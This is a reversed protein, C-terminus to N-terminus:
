SYKPPKWSPFTFEKFVISDNFISLFIRQKFVNFPLQVQVILDNEFSDFKSFFDNVENKQDSSIETNCIPTKYYSYVDLGLCLLVTILFFLRFLLFKSGKM